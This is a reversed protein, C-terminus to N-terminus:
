VESSFGLCARLAATTQVTRILLAFDDFGMIRCLILFEGRFYSLTLLLCLLSIKGFFFGRGPKQLKVGRHSLPLCDMQSAPSRPKISGRSSPMAVWGM